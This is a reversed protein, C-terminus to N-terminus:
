RRDEMVMKAMTKGKTMVLPKYRTRLRGRGLTVGGKAVLHGLWEARTRDAANEIPLICAVPRGRDTIRVAQGERVLALYKGFRNKLERCAVTVM